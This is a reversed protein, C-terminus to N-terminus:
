SIIETLGGVVVVVRKIMGRGSSRSIEEQNTPKLACRNVGM